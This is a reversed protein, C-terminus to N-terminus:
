ISIKLDVEISFCLYGTVINFSIQARHGQFVAMTLFFGGVKKHESVPSVAFSRQAGVYELILNLEM